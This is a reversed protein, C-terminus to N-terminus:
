AAHDVFACPCPAPADARADWSTGDCNVCKGQACEPCAPAVQTDDLLQADMLPGGWGTHAEQEAAFM